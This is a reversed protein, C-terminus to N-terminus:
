SWTSTTAWTPTRIPTRRTVAGHTAWRTHGIGTTAVTPADAVDLALGPGAVATLELDHAEVAARLRELNGVARIRELGVDTQLSLGASDYGATNSASWLM